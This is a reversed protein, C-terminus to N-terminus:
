VIINKNLFIISYFNGQSMLKKVVFSDENKDDLSYYKNNIFNFFYKNEDFSRFVIYCGLEPKM